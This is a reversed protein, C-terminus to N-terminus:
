HAGLLELQRESEGWTRQLAAHDGIHVANCIAIHVM